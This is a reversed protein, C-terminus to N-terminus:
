PAVNQPNDWREGRSEASESVVRKAGMTVGLVPLILFLVSVVRFAPQRRQGALGVVTDRSLAVTLVFCSRSTLREAWPRGDGLPLSSTGGVSCQHEPELLSRVRSM